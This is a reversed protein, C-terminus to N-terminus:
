RTGTFTVTGHPVKPDRDMLLKFYVHYRAALIEEGKGNTLQVDQAIAYEDANAHLIAEM